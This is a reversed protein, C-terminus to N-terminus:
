QKFDENISKITESILKPDLGSKKIDSDSFNSIDQEGLYRCLRCRDVNDVSFGWGNNKKDVNIKVSDVSSKKDKINLHTSLTSLTSLDTLQPCMPSVISNFIDMDAIIYTGNGDRKKEFGLRKLHTGINRNLYIDHNDQRNQQNCFSDKIKDLYHRDTHHYNKITDKLASLCMYDFSSEPILDDLRMDSQEIAFNLIEKYDEESIFKAISLLPKWIQYDRRKLGIKKPFNNYIEKIEKWNYLAFRYCEDRINEWVKNNRDEAPDVEGRDDDNPSKTTIQTIARTETAGYLGNISTLRTPSYPSYWKTVFKNGIKEQRPVRGEKTYSANILETRVDGEYQKTLKNFVFLKEAEDFYKTGRVEDTERFLTAESPNIMIQGGNFSIYSSVVNEKTKGTGALGRLEYLPYAEFCMYLYTGIDWLSSVKYWTNNRKYLYKTYREIINKLLEKGVPKKDTGDLFSKINKLGWRKPLQAPINDFGIKLLDLNKYNIEFIERDSTIICPIQKQREGLDKGKSNIENVNKPIFLGLQFKDKCIDIPFSFKKIVKDEDWIFSKLKERNIKQKVEKIYKEQLKKKEKEKKIGVEKYGEVEEKIGM